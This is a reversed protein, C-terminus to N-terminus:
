EAVLDHVVHVQEVEIEIKVLLGGLATPAAGGVRADNGGRASSMRARERIGVADQKETAAVNIAGDEVIDIQEVSHKERQGVLLEIAVILERFETNATDSGRILRM